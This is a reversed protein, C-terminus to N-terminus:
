RGAVVIAVMSRTHEHGAPQPVVTVSPGVVEESAKRRYSVAVTRSKASEGVIRIATIKAPHVDAFLPSLLAMAFLIKKM